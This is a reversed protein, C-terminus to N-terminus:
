ADRPTRYLALINETPVDNQIFHAASLIYGGGQGLVRCRHRVEDNIDSPQGFPLTHQLDIAGHFSIQHGFERKIRAMDMGSAGPQLPNLVDIGMEDIFPQIMPYVAGCSHYMIKVDFKRIARNLRQHRPLIYKRWMTPSIFLGNNHAVDDWTYVMDIRGNVAQLIRRVKEIYLDTYRDMIACPIEPNKVMDILFTDLGTLAWAREFIGGADYCIFYDGRAKLQDVQDVLSDVDWYDAQPWDWNNVEKVTSVGELAFAGLEEYTGFDHKVNRRWAGHTDMWIGDSLTKHPGIYDPAVWRVDVQLKDLIEQQSETRFFQELRQWVESVAWFDVPTRDPTQHDM